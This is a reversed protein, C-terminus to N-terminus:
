SILSNNRLEEIYKESYGLIESLVEDTHQGLTPPATRADNRAESYVVAPGVVKVPGALPHTLTKVIGIEKIHIDNFVEKMSNVPGVPFPAENFLKMWEKNSNTVLINSLIDILEVRNNVRDKNTSFKPNEAIGEIKLFRCLARFQDDSGAGITLFGSSTKFAQYPVISGHATGMRTAEKGSNLYNSAVNILTSVQTSLLNVDIKQGRGTKYRQLLAALIAGHAYLGTAVDTMAVGVKSPPGDPQGTIHLLGGMSSAIVDYGPKKAYPGISGYGTVSCYILQPAIEKLDDYGLNFKDLKGPVYNEVLVDSRRALDHIIKIGKKMDICISKKNRNCAVSYVSDESNKLFPPGWRRSEDGSGPKEVKIVEAGLDSLVMTAFPGAVIRTLDLIRVGHLPYKELDTSYCRVSRVFAGLRSFCSIM